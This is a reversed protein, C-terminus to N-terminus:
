RQSAVLLAKLFFLFVFRYRLIAGSFAHLCFRFPTRRCAAVESIFASKKKSNLVRVRKEQQGLRATITEPPFVFFATHSSAIFETLAASLQAFHTNTPHLRFQFYLAGPVSARQRYGPLSISVHLTRNHHRSNRRTGLGPAQLKYTSFLLFLPFLRAPQVRVLIFLLVPPQATGTGESRSVLAASAAAQSAELPRKM